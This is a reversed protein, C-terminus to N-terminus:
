AASDDVDNRTERKSTSSRTNAELWRDLDARDYFVRSGLKVFRPGRGEVRWRALTPIAIGGLYEAAGQPPLLRRPENPVSMWDGM